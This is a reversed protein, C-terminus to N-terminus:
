RVSKALFEVAPKSQGALKLLYWDALILVDKRHTEAHAQIDLLPPIAEPRRHRALTLAAYIRLDTFPSERLPSVLDCVKPNTGRYLAGATLKRLADDRGNLIEKLGAMAEPTGLNALLEVVAALRDHQPTMVDESLNARRLTELMPKVYWRAKKADKQVDDRMRNVTYELLIPHGLDVLLVRLTEEMDPEGRLRAEEFRAVAGLLDDRQTVDDLFYKVDPQEALIRMLNVRFLDSEKPATAASLLRKSADPAIDALAMYAQVRVPELRDPRTLFRAVEVASKIQERRIQDLLRLLLDESTKPDLLIKRLEEKQTEADVGLGFLSMRAQAVTEPDRSRLLAQLTAVTQDGKGRQALARAALMRIGDDEINLADVLQKTTLANQQLLQVLAESRVDMSPDSKLRTRLAETLQEDADRRILATTTLRTQRDSSNLLAIYLPNLEKDRTSRLGLLLVGLQKDDALADRLSNRAKAVAADPM